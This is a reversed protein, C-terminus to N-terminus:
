EPGLLAYLVLGLLPLLLILVIWMVKRGTTVTSQTVKVIAWVDLILIILGILSSVEIGMIINRLTYNVSENKAISAVSDINAVTNSIIILLFGTTMYSLVKM